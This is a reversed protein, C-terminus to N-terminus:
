IVRKSAKQTENQSLPTSESQKDTLSTKQKRANHRKRLVHGFYLSIATFAVIILITQFEKINTIIEKGFEAILIIQIPVSLLAASGDVLLFKWVSLGLMGASFHGPFRLGPTFRFLGAAWQGYKQVWSSVKYIQGQYKRFLRFRLVKQGFVRGLVYILLDSLVVAALAIAATTYTEVSQAGPYPPPSSAALYCVLGASILTVEEPIPLGFSSAFMIGVLSLYVIHPQYAFKVFFPLIQEEFM